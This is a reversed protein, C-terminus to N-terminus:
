EEEFSLGMEDLREARVNLRGILDALADEVSEVTKKPALERYTASLRSMEGVGAKGIVGDAQQIKEIVRGAVVEDVGGELLVYYYRAPRRQGELQRSPDIRGECQLQKGPLWDIDLFVMACAHTLTASEKVAEMTCILVQAADMKWQEILQARKDATTGGDATPGGMALFSSVKRRDLLKQLQIAHKREQVYAVVPEDLQAILEAGVKLKAGCARRLADDLGRDKLARIQEKTLMLPTPCEVKVIKRIRAPLEGFAEEVTRQLIFPELDKNLQDKDLLEGISNGNGYADRIINFYKYAFSFKSGLAGPAIIDVLNHLDECRNHIPTGTLLFTREARSVLQRTVQTYASKQKKLLHAEDAIVTGLLCDHEQALQLLKTASEYSTVVLAPPRGSEISELMPIIKRQHYEEETEHKRRHRTEDLSVTFVPLEPWYTRAERAWDARSLATTVVIINNDLPKHEEIILRATALATRSKGFGPPDALLRGRAYKTPRETLWQAGTKQYNRLGREWSM